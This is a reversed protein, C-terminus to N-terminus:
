IRNRQRFWCAGVGLGREDVCHGQKTSAHRQGENAMYTGHTM